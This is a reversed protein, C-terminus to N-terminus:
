LTKPARNPKTTLSSTANSAAVTGNPEALTKNSVALNTKKEDAVAAVVGGWGQEGSVITAITSNTANAKTANSVSLLKRLEAFGEPLKSGLRPYRSITPVSFNRAIASYGAIARVDRRITRCVETIPLLPRQSSWYWYDLLSRHCAPQQYAHGM